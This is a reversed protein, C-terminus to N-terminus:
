AAQQQQRWGPGRYVCGEAQGEPGRKVEIRDLSPFAPKLEDWIWRAVNELSPISLGDVDNLYRHDLKSRVAEVRKEVEYLNASWGYVPDPDGSLHVGVKFSHGHLGSYPQLQHAAEFTFEKFTEM